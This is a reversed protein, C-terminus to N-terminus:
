RVPCSRIKPIDGVCYRDERRSPADSSYNREGGKFCCQGAGHFAILFGRGESMRQEGASPLKEKMDTLSYRLLIRSIEAVATSISSPAADCKTLALFDAPSFVGSLGGSRCIAPSFLREFKDLVSRVAPFTPQFDLRECSSLIEYPHRATSATRRSGNEM